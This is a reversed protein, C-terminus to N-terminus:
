FRVTVAVAAAAGAGAGAALLVRFFKTNRKMQLLNDRAREYGNIEIRHCLLHSGSSDTLLFLMSRWVSPVNFTETNASCERVCARLVSECM